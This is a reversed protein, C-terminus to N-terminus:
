PALGARVEEARDEGDALRILELAFAFCTGAARGTTVPGDTIVPADEYRARTLRAAVAPHCTARRGDLAGAAQLVLPGACVAALRRGARHHARAAALVRADRLLRQVGESGDPILLVDFTAPDVDAWAADTQLTVDRSCRVPGAALGALTVAWGARRLVDASIVAEMEECGEALPILVKTM